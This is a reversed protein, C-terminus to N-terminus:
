IDVKCIERIWICSDESEFGVESVAPLAEIGQCAMVVEAAVLTRVVGTGRIGDDVKCGISSVHQNRYTEM